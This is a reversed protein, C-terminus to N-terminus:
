AAKVFFLLQHFNISQIRSFVAFNLILDSQTLNRQIEIKGYQFGRATPYMINAPDNSHGLGLFHGLEHQAINTVFSSAYPQWKGLCNSDGLAILIVHDGPRYEGAIEGYEQIWQVEVDAQQPSAAQNFKIGPNVNEWRSAADFIVDSTIGAYNPLPDVYLDYNKQSEAGESYPM